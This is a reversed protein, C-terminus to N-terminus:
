LITKEKIVKCNVTLRYPTHSYGTCTALTFTQAEEGEIKWDDQFVADDKECSFVSEIHLEKSKQPTYVYLTPNQKQFEEDQFEQLRGFIQGSIMNHGFLRIHFESLKEDMHAYTSVSGLISYSGDFSKSLYEEDTQGKLIPEDLGIQPIYLWGIIDDNIQKLTDFDIKRELPDAADNDQQSTVTKIIAEHKISAEQFPKHEKYAMYGFVVATALLILICVKYIRARM